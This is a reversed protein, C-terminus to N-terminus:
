RRCRARIGGRSRCRPLEARRLRPGEHLARGGRPYVGAARRRCRHALRVPSGQGCQHVVRRERGPFGHIRHFRRGLRRWRGCCRHQRQSGRRCGGFRTVYEVIPATAAVPDPPFVATAVPFSRTISPAAAFSSNGPQSAQVTCTGIALLRVSAGAITCVGPTLSAFVVPLGSGAFASLPVPSEALGHADPAAFTITQWAVQIPFSRDVNPAAQFNADGAQAARLACTGVARALVLSGSTMCIAPTLSTVTVALGSTATAEAAVAAAALTVASPGVFTITQAARTVSFSRDVTPAPAYSSNGAQSSRVTCTGAALPTVTALNVSCLAPTVSAFAVPLGSSAVATVVFAGSGVPRDAIAGFTIAQSAPSITIAFAQAADPPAGNRALLMGAFTGTMTPLGSVFGTTTNLSLGPPLVNAGVSFTPAPSGSATAQYSYAGNFVGNPPPASTFIPPTAAAVNTLTFAAALGNVTATVSYTGTGGNAIFAPATAIGSSSTLAQVSSITGFAGSAGTAPAGFTVSAGVVPAGAADRLTVALPVPFATNVTTTQANGAAISLTGPGSAGGKSLLVSVVNAAGGAVALDPRGDGNFDATAIAMPQTAVGYHLPAGFGGSGTGPLVVIDDGLEDFAAADLRGDGDADILVVGAPTTGAAFSAANGFRGAGANLLVSISNSWANAVVVDLRGDGNLDGVAVAQPSWEVAYETGARFQAGGSGLAVTVTNADANAVILDRIGDGDIDAVVVAMPNAGTPLVATVRFSGDGNGLLVVASQGVVDGSTGSTVVIDPKGDGDLDAAAIGFLAVGVPVSVASRFTGDGKGLLITVDQSLLNTIALDLRGDGDFDRTAVAMPGVGTEYSVAPAFSGNGQGLLVAVTGESWNVVALDPKGDGNFDGAAIGDPFLGTGFNVPVQFLPGSTVPLLNISQDVNAAPAYGANGPQSARVTCVGEALPALRTGTIACTGPTLTTFSVALGSTATAYLGSAPAGVFQDVMRGFNISQSLLAAAAQSSVM